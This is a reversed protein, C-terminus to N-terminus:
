RHTVGRSTLMLVRSKPMTGDSKAGNVRVGGAEEEDEEDEEDSDTDSLDEDLLEEMDIDEDDEAVPRELKKKSISKYVSAM